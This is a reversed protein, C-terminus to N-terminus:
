EISLESEAVGVNGTPGHQATVRIDYDGPQPPAFRAAFRSPEGAYALPGSAVIEGDRMASYSIEYEGADWLGGPTIPCGCMLAIHADVVLAGGDALRSEGLDVVLGPMRLIVGDPGNPAVGPLVWRTQSVGAASAPYDRPGSAEIVIRTPEDIDISTAFGADGEGALSAHRRHPEVVLRETDGTGGSTVGEALLAGTEADRIAIGVGGMSTGIFKGDEALVRVTVHTPEAAAPGAIALLMAASVISRM